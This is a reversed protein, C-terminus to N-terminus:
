ENIEALFDKDAYSSEEENGLDFPVDEVTPTVVTAAVEVPRSSASPVEYERPDYGTDENPVLGLEKKLELKMEDVTKLIRLEALNYCNALWEKVQDPDGLPSPDPLFQSGKYDPYDGKSSKMILFDYGKEPDHVPFPKKKNVKSKPNGVYAICVEAHLTKGISLIKVGKQSPDDRVVVNYYYRDIPKIRRAIETLKAAIAANAKNNIQEWLHNYHDCIPCVGIKGVWKGGELTKRCHVSKGNVYHLRTSQFPLIMGHSPPLIRVTLEGENPLQVYKDKWDNNTDKPDKLVRNAEQQIAELFDM